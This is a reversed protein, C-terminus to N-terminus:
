NLSVTAFKPLYFLLLSVIEDHCAYPGFWSGLVIQEEPVKAIIDDSLMLPM